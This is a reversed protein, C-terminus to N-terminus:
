AIFSRVQHSEGHDHATRAAKCKQDGNQNESEFNDKAKDFRAVHAAENGTVRPVEARAGGLIRLSDHFPTRCRAKQPM